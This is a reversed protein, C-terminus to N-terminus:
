FGLTALDRFTLETNITTGNFTSAREVCVFDGDARAAPIDFNVVSGTSLDHFRESDADLTMTIDPQAYRDAYANGHDRADSFTQAAEYTKFTERRRYRDMSDNEEIRVTVSFPYFSKYALSGNPDLGVYHGASDDESEVILWPNQQPPFTHSPLLFETWDNESIFEDALVRRALDSDNDSPSVPAGNKDAQLRVVLNNDAGSQRQTHIQVRDIESKRTPIQRMLRTTGGVETHSGIDTVEDDLRYNTGGLVQIDNHLHDDNFDVSWTGYDAGAGEFTPTVTVPDVMELRKHNAYLVVGLRNALEIVAELLNAGTMRISTREHKDDPLQSRDIEPANEELIYDLIGLETSDPDGGTVIRRDEFANTVTRMSLVGFVFDEANASITYVSAGEGEISFPRVVGTWYHDPNDYYAPDEPVSGDRAIYLELRDGHDITHSYKGGNNQITLSASDKLDQAREAIDFGAVDAPDIEYDAGLASTVDNTAEYGLLRADSFNLTM